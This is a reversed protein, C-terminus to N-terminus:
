LYFLSSVISSVSIPHIYRDLAFRETLLLTTQKTHSHNNTHEWTYIYVRFSGVM